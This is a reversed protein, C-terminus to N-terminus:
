FVRNDFKHMDSLYKFYDKGYSEPILVRPMRYDGFDFTFDCKDAIEQTNEIAEPLSLFLDRMEDETKVSYDGEYLMRGPDSLKKDTQMCILWEHAEKDESDVYHCDNTAVLKIELERSFRVMNQTVMAEESLGHNQIELYYDDGFLARYRLIIEKAHEMDGSLIARPVEGAVCASLCILGDHHEKLVEFDIRPKYYFGETNSRSILICLNKYGTENKVLLILHNYAKEGAEKSKDFRSGPAIYFECGLIPKIGTELCANYFEVLGSGTGHDTIACATMGSNKVKKVIQSIKGMGDQLSYETHVHLHVYSM